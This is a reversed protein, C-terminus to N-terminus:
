GRPRHIRRLGKSHKRRNYLILASSCSAVVMAFGGVALAIHAADTSVLGILVLTIGCLLGLTPLAFTTSRRSRGRQIMCALRPDEAVLAQEIEDLARQEERSLTV